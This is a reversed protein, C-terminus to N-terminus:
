FINILDVKADPAFISVYSIIDNLHNYITNDDICNPVYTYFLANKTDSTIQTRSDPGNLISSIIGEKDCLMMDNSTTSQQKGSIGVFSEGGEALNLEIPFQIKDLDHAATLLLNKLEALFMSEVLTSVNPLPCSKLVVSELQLLVPYTKKFQKYYNIYHCVPESKVFDKRNYNEYQMLLQKTVSIKAKIFASDEFLNKVDKMVLIGLKANPYIKKLNEHIILM